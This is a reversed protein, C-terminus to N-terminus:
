TLYTQKLAINRHKGPWCADKDTFIEESSGKIFNLFTHFESVRVGGACHVILLERRNNIKPIKLWPASQNSLTLPAFSFIVITDLFSSFISILHNCIALQLTSNTAVNCLLLMTSYCCQLTAVNYLLLMASYCCQLTAVNCLLLMASYCCQLTAVNYRFFFLQLNVM